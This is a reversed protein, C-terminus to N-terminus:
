VPPGAEAQWASTRLHCWGESHRLRAGPVAGIIIVILQASVGAIGGGGCTVNQGVVIQINSAHGIDGAPTPASEGENARRAGPQAITKVRACGGMFESVIIAEIVRVEPIGAALAHDPGARADLLAVVPIGHAPRQGAVVVEIGM